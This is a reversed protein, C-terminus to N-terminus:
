VCLARVVSEDGEAIRKEIGEEDIEMVMDKAAAVADDIETDRQAEEDVEMSPVNVNDTGDVLTNEPSEESRVLPSQSAEEQDNRQVLPSASASPAASPQVPAEDEAVPLVPQQSAVTVAETEEASV